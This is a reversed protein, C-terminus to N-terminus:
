GNTIGAKELADAIENIKSALSKFNNNLTAQTFSSGADAITNSATGTAATLAVIGGVRLDANYSSDHATDGFSLILEAGANWTVDSDNTVTIDSSGFTLTFGGAGQRYVVQTSTDVIVAGTSNMLAAQNSGTPYVTTFTAADAVNSALIHTKNAIAGM